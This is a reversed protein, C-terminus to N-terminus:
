LTTQNVKNGLDEMYASYYTWIIFYYKKQLGAILTCHAPFLTCICHVVKYFFTSYENGSM